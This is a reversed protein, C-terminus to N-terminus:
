VYSSDKSESWMHIHTVFGDRVREANLKLWVDRVYLSRFFFFVRKHFLREWNDGYKLKSSFPAAFAPM